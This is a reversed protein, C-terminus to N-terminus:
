ETRAFAQAVIATRLRTLEEIGLVERMFSLVRSVAATDTIPQGEWEKGMHETGLVEAFYRYMDTIRKQQGESEPFRRAVFEAVGLRRLAQEFPELRAEIDPTIWLAHKRKIAQLANSHDLAKGTPGERFLTELTTFVEPMYEECFAVHKDFAVTAMHSEAALAFRNKSLAQDREHQRKSEERLIDVVVTSLAGFIPIAALTQILEAHPLLLAAGLSTAVVAAVAIYHKRQM